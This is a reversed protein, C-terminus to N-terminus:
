VLSGPVVVYSAGVSHAIGGNWACYINPLHFTIFEQQKEDFLKGEPLMLIEPLPSHKLDSIKESQVVSHIYDIM